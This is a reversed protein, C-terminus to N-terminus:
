CLITTKLIKSVVKKKGLAHVQTNAIHHARIASTRLTYLSHDLHFWKSPPDKPEPVTSNPIPCGKPWTLKNYDLSM